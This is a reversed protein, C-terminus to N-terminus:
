ETLSQKAREQKEVTKVALSRKLASIEANKANMEDRLFDVQVQKRALLKRPTLYLVHAVLFVGYAFAMTVLGLVAAEFYTLLTDTGVILFALFAGAAFIAASAYFTVKKEEALFARSDHKATMWLHRSYYVVPPRPAAAKKVPLPQLPREPM